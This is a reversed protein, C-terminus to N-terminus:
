HQLVSDPPFVIWSDLTDFSMWIRLPLNSSFLYKVSFANFSEAASISSMFTCIVLRSPWIFFILSLNFAKSLGSLVASLVEEFAALLFQFFSQLVQFLAVIGPPAVQLVLLMLYYSLLIRLLMYHM